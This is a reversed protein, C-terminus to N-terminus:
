VYLMKVSIANRAKKGFVGDALESVIKRINNWGDEVNHEVIRMSSAALTM